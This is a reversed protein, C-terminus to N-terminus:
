ILLKKTEADGQGTRKLFEGIVRTADALRKSEVNVANRGERKIGIYEAAQGSLAAYRLIWGTIFALQSDNEQYGPGIKQVFYDHASLQVQKLVDLCRLHMSVYDFRISTTESQLGEELISLLQLISFKPSRHKREHRKKSQNHSVGAEEEKRIRDMTVDSLLSEVANLSFTTGASPDRVYKSLFLPLIQAHDELGKPGNQSAISPKVRRTRLYSPREAPNFAHRMAGQVETSYGMMHLFSVHSDDISSPYRGGFIDETGHVKIILNMDPWEPFSRGPEVGFHKSATVLHAASLVFGFANALTLGLQQYKLRLRFLILGCLLPDREFLSLQLPVRNRVAKYMLAVPAMTKWAHLEAKLLDMIMENNRPWTDLPDKPELKQRRDLTDLMDSAGRKLEALGRTTSAGLILNIDVFVQLYIVLLLTPQKSNAFHNMETAIEDIFFLNSPKGEGVVPASPITRGDEDVVSLLFYDTFSECMLIQSQRCRESFPITYFDLNPNYQGFHGPKYVPVVGDKIVDKMGYLLQQVPLFLHDYVTTTFTDDDDLFHYTPIQTTVEGTYPMTLVNFLTASLFRIDRRFLPLVSHVIDDYPKRILELATNTTVAATILDLKGSKYREWISIIEGRIDHMDEYYALVRIVAEEQSLEPACRIHVPATSSPRPPEPLFIDPLDEVDDLEERELEAFRNTSSRPAHSTTTVSPDQKKHEDFINYVDILVDIFYAHSSTSANPIKSFWRLCSYRLQICRDLLQMLESPIRVSHAVLHEAIAKYQHSPILYDRANSASPSKITSNIDVKAIGEAVDDVKVDNLDGDLREDDLEEAGNGDPQGKVKAKAKARKKANKKQSPSLKDDEELHESSPTFNDLSFGYQVATKGLWTSLQNNDRKYQQYKSRIFKSM